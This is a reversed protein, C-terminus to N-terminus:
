YNQAPLRQIFSVFISIAMVWKGIPKIMSSYSLNKGEAVFLILNSIIPFYGQM